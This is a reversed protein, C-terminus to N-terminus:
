FAFNLTARLGHDDNNKGYQGSYDLSFRTRSSLNVGLGAQLLLADPDIAVARINGYQGVAPIGIFTAAERAGSTRQWSASANIDLKGGDVTKAFRLGANFVNINYSQKPASLAAVGGTETLGNMDAAVYSNRVFPEVRTDASKALDYAMEGFVQYTTGTTRGALSQTFGTLTIGRNGNSRAGAVSAGANFVFGADQQRWGAYLTGGVTEVRSSGGLYNFTVDTTTYHFMGGVTLNDRSWDIGTLVGYQETKFATAAGSTRAKGWSGAGRLWITLSSDGSDSSVQEGSVSALGLNLRDLATERFVRNTDLVVRRETARQEGSMERLTRSLNTGATYIPFFAQPNYGQAVARDFALAVELPNGTLGGFQNGIAVLSNPNIRILATTPTYNVTAAFAPGFLELGTTSAFTGTLSAGSAVIFEQGFLPPTVSAVVLNGGLTLAGGATVRDSSAGAINVTLTGNLTAAGSVTLTGVNSTGAAGPAVNGGAQVNLSAVTGTGSITAGSNVTVASAVSGLMNLTGASVLTAGAYTSAGSLTLVGTGIKTVSGPGSIVGALSFVSPAAGSNFTSAGQLSIANALSLGSTGASLTTGDAMTLAGTGLATSSGVTITGATQTTGGSYSSAGNLVLNGGGLKTISGAGSIAGNLTFNNAGIDITGIGATSIANALALNNAGAVLTTGGAMALAGTGLATNTGVQITGATLTTGGAYSNAGNLVLTGGGLKTLSTGSIIGTSTLTNAGTDISGGGTGLVVNRATTFSATTRLTGAAMTIGGAANGLNADQSVEVTTGTIVTGGTYTNIGTLVLAAAPVAASDIVSLPGTGSIVGGLTLTQGAVDVTGLGNLGIANTLSLGAAGAQLTTGAAMALAGTSLASNNGVRITGASLTTGGAYSNVGNLVLTGTGTKALTGSGDIVGDLTFIFAQSGITSTGNITIPNALALGAAGALLTTGDAMVLGGTGLASDNTVTITGEDLNTGNAYSNAGGLVLTGSGAKNLPGAGDIVGNLTLTFAVTDVNGSGLMTVANALVLNNAGAALTTADAMTLTGTGLATSSGVTITGADLATGGAYSNAGTLILNGSGIKALSGAGSIVGSLTFVNAATDITGVGNTVVANGVTLGDAGAALTTADAMTLTGTGLATNSGVTITGADLATGGAYSNAGTLILNGSGIKALSGAGSIVGSLTFVNAATDITGVGNTVVANGVNLGDAGAALTTGGAMTLTGTGLAANDTVTITGANLATGGAYSNANTLILNGSGIKALSGAGSIVGSLTFVNAATDITGVGNTVVANGVNLGDAGAALTTGGAMTLTGTGLAANDTVTITGANLATGGTYTNANTLILNGSGTKAISGAGSIVGSLTFINAGTNVTGVGLTTVDNAVTLGDIGAILTTGDAMTLAGTGLANNNEVQISGVNLLTGGSYTNNGQLILTGTGIKVLQGPAGGAAAFAYNTYAPGIANDSVYASAAENPNGSTFGSTPGYYQGLYKQSYDQAFLAADFGIVSYWAQFNILNPDSGATSIVYDGPAGGFLLAAAEQGTYALPGDPPSGNWTPGQDVQWSGVFFGGAIVADALTASLTFNNAGTDITNAGTMNVDNGVNLGNAGAALTTGDAMTLAGTGLANSNTVTITGADLATGGAYSNSNTLTLNGSGIKDISGPGSIVGSLTLNNAATDVTGVGATTIANGVNLGNAGAALTTGDAMALTGTGLATNSGVTITGADLATGGAYSNANTLVLNGSGIKALSGPGSIVGSLTFVNAATDITGVGNTVVANGVNLGDVGALLTTGDAMTLTGTGLAANDGVQVTGVNLQTGGAYSNAGNLVLTGLGGKVLTGPGSLLGDLTLTNGNSDINSLGNLTMANALTVGTDARLTTGGTFVLAGLGLAGDSTVALTGNQLNIDGTLTNTGGLVLVGAGQKFLDGSGGITANITATLGGDVGIFSGITGNTNLSGGADNLVYGDAQFALGGFNLDSAVDVSGGTAGFIGIANDQWAANIEGPAEGTWNTNTANFVGNGGQAGATAGTLDTGDWNLVISGPGAVILNVQQATGNIQVNGTLGNPLVGNIALGNDTLTGGYSILNYIGLTFAGGVTESVNLLGDLVLDGTVVLRDNLPGGITNAAGLQFDLLSGGSLSLNGLTFVGPSQSNISLTAGDALSVSGAITGTGDLTAGDAVGLTFAANSLTGTVALTGASVTSAGSLDGGTSIVLTGSGLKDFGGPGILEGAATLQFSGTDITTAGNFLLNNGITLNDAGAILGTGGFFLANASGLASNSGVQVQGEIILTGGSYSNNGNLVLTGTGVKNILGGGSVTGDLTLTQAVTDISATGNLSIANALTFDGAGSQLTTSGAMALAGTGLATNSGVQLTGADLNTGGAYSNAGNLALTGGGIKTLSGAGSVVGSLTFFNSGTDITGVGNTVVANGVNLGDAGAALTTGGAMTLTGTGLASSNLVTIIGANLATGDAYLNAGSLSLNGSGIKTISGAGSIVGSLTFANAGTDITGNGLTVVNNGVALGDLGAILTTGDAMTLAGSGLANNNELQISGANLLTGGSYSNSGQLILSGSGIKILQGPVGALFAYNTFGPGNANDNVYASAPQGADSGYGDTPGYYLGLYKSFYDQALAASGFGIISYWAQNNILGVNAGATSIVYDGPAGGFLLAAAEQGTYALPGNPPSGSWSPGDGVQWAGAFLTPFQDVITGSLTLNNAGTDITNAGNLEIDNGVTLGDAGAALTTGDAMALAGTGLAANNAVTITGADLSTGDAYSNAVGLVLNGSGGKTLGNVGSIAVNITASGSAVNITGNDIVLDGGGGLVYGDANFNITGFTRTGNVTVAGGGAVGGFNAVTTVDDVYALNFFGDSNTWNTTGAGWTGAGGTIVGDVPAGNGDWNFAAGAAYSVLLNVQGPTATDIAYSVDAPPTTLIGGLNLGDDTLSGAYNFLRYAGTGINWGALPNVNLTGNIILGGDVEVLDNSGGAVTIDGLDFVANAASSFQLNTVTLTGAGGVGPSLTAGDNIFLDGEVAGTGTVSTGTFAQVIGQVAGTINLTGGEVWLEGPQTNVNNALTLTGDGRKYAGGGLLSGTLTVDNGNTNLEYQDSISNINNAVTMAADFRLVSTGNITVADAGLAAAQTIALTGTDITLGGTFSNNGGLVLTGNGSKTLGNTGVLDVNIVANVADAVSITGADAGLSAGAAGNLVYGDVLFNLAAHTFNGDVTVTGGTGAFFALGGNIWANSVTGTSDTWNSNGANWTGSGGEVTGNGFPGAGDWYLNILAVELDVFGGGTNLTYNYGVPLVGLSATGSLAGGYTMLRYTGVGFGPLINFNFTGGLDLNGSVIVLDNIPTTTNISPAGLDLITTSTGGLTLNGVSLTGIANPGDLADGPSLTAGDAITVTGTTHFGTGTLAAGSSVAIAGSQGGTLNFTGETVFFGGSLINNNFPNTDGNSATFIGTGTKVIALTDGGPTNGDRLAGAWNVNNSGIDVTTSIPGAGSYSILRTTITQNDALVRVSTGATEARIATMSNVAGASGIGVAGPGQLRLVGTLSNNGSFVVTGGGAGFQPALPTILNINAAGSINGSFTFVGGPDPLFIQLASTASSFNNAITLSDGPNGQGIYSTQTQVVNGTGLASNNGLFVVGGSLTTGGSYTNVGNLRLGQGVGIKTLSGNGSIVGDLTLSRGAALDATLNAQLVIDNALTRPTLNSTGLRAAGTVTLVGTGLAQDSGVRLAGAALTVGGTFNSSALAPNANALDLTGSGIKVLALDGQLAGNFVSNVTSNVTLTAPGGTSTVVGTANGTLNRVTNSFGNLDVISVTTASGSVSLQSFPSLATTSGAILSGATVSTLGSHTNVGFLTVSGTGRKNFAFVGLSDTFDGSFSLNGTTTLRFNGNTIETPTIGVGPSSFSQFDNRSVTLGGLDAVQAHAPVLASGALMLAAVSLGIRRSASADRIHSRTAGSVTSGLGNQRRASM